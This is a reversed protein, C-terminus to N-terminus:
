GVGWAFLNALTAFYLASRTLVLPEGGVEYPMPVDVRRLVRGDAESVALLEHRHRRASDPAYHYVVAYLVGGGVVPTWYSTSLEAGRLAYSRRWLLSGDSLRLATLFGDEVVFLTDGAVAAHRAVQFACWRREGTVLAFVCTGGAGVTIVSDGAVTVETGSADARWRQAGTQQDLATLVFGTLQSGDSLAGARLVQDGALVPASTGSDGEATVSWRVRGSAPELAEVQTGGSAVLVRGAMVGSADALESPRAGVVFADGPANQKWRLRGKEDYSRLQPGGIGEGTPRAQVVVAGGVVAVQGFVLGPASALPGLDLGIKANYKRLEGTPHEYGRYLTSSRILTQGTIAVGAIQREAPGASITWLPRLSPRAVPSPAASASTGAAVLVVSFATALFSGRM